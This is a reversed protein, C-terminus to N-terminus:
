QSAMNKHFEQNSGVKSERNYSSACLGMYLAVTDGLIVVEQGGSGFFKAIGGASITDLHPEKMQKYYRPSDAPLTLLIFTLINIM